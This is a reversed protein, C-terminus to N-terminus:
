PDIGSSKVIEEYRQKLLGYLPEDVLENISLELFLKTRRLIRLLQEEDKLLILYDSNDYIDAAKILLAWKGADKCRNLMDIDREYKNNIEINITNASVLKRVEVGFEKEIDGAKVDTDELLDHLLAAVVVDQSYNDKYLFLGTRISHLIVPKPNRGTSVFNQVLFIIAKEVMKDFEYNYTAITVM